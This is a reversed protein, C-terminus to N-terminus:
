LRSEDQNSFIFGSCFSLLPHLRVAGHGYLLVLAHVKCQTGVYTQRLSLAWVILKTKGRQLAMMGWM